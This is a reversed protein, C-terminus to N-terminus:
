ALERRQQSLEIWYNFDARTLWVLWDKESIGEPERFYQTGYPQCHWYGIKQAYGRLVKSDSIFGWVFDPDWRLYAILLALRSLRTALGNGRWQPAIWLDGHYVINGSILEAGPAHGAIQDADHGCYLRRYQLDLHRALPITIRERRMAEVAVTEGEAVAELWFLDSPDAAIFRSNLPPSTGGQGALAQHAREFGELDDHQRITLGASDLAKELAVVLRAAVLDNRM